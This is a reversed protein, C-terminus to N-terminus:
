RYGLKHAVNVIAASVLRKAQRESYSVVMAAGAITHTKRFFVCELIQRTEKGNELQDLDALMAEVATLCLAENEATPQHKKWRPYQFLMWRVRKWWWPRQSM